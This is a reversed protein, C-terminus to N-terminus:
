TQDALAKKRLVTSKWYPPGRNPAREPVSIPEGINALYRTISESRTVMALLKM